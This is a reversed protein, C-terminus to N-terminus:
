PHEATTVIYWSNFNLLFQFLAPQAFCDCLLSLPELNEVWDMRYDAPFFPFFPLDVLSFSPVCFCLWGQLDLHEDFLLNDNVSNTSLCSYLFGLFVWIVWESLKLGIDPGENVWSQSWHTGLSSLSLVPIDTLWGTFILFSKQQSLFRQKDPLIAFFRRFWNDIPSIITGCIHLEAGLLLATSGM